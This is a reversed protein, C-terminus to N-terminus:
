AHGQRAETSQFMGAEVFLVGSRVLTDLVDRCRLVDVSFLRAAQEITICLGPMERFESVVRTGLEREPQNM